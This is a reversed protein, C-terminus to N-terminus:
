KFGFSRPILGGKFQDLLKGNADYRYVNGNALEDLPDSVYVENNVGDVGLGYFDGQAFPVIPLVSDMVSMTYLDGRSDDLYYITSGSRDIEMREPKKLVDTFVMEREIENSDLNYVVMSAPTNNVPNTPDPIGTCYVWLLGNRDKALALPNHGVWLTDTVQDTNSDFVLVTSDAGFGGSNAVYVKDDITLIAEPGPGTAVLKEVKGTQANLVHIANSAWDAVYYKEASVKEIFRPSGLDEFRAEVKLTNTNCMIVSGTGNIVLFARDGDIFVQSLVNGPPILNAKQFVNKETTRSGTSYSIISGTGGQFAGENAILVAATFAPNEGTDPDEKCAGLLLAGIALFIFLNTKM